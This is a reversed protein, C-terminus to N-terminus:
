RAAAMSSNPLRCRRNPARGSSGSVMERSLAHHGRMALSAPHETRCRATPMRPSRRSSPGPSPSLRVSSTAAQDAAQNRSARVVSSGAGRHITTGSTSQAAPRAQRSSGARQANSQSPMPTPRPEGPAAPAAASTSPQGAHSNARQRGTPRSSERAHGRPGPRRDCGNSRASGPRSRGTFRTNKAAVARPRTRAAGGSRTKPARRIAASARNSRRTLPSRSKGKSATSRCETTAANTAQGAAPSSEVM